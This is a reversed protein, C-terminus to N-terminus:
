LLNTIITATAGIIIGTVTAILTWRVLRTSAESATKNEQHQRELEAQTQM